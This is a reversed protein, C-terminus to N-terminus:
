CLRHGYIKWTRSWQRQGDPKLITVVGVTEEADTKTFNDHVSLCLSQAQWTGM